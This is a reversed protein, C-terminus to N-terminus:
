PGSGPAKRYGGTRDFADLLCNTLQGCTEAERGCVLEAQVYPDDLHRHCQWTLDSWSMGIPRLESYTSRKSCEMMRETLRKCEGDPEGRCSFLGILVVLWRARQGVRYGTMRLAM